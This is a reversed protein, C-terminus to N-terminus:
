PTDTHATSNPLTPEPTQGIPDPQHRRGNIFLVALFVALACATLAGGLKMAGMAQMSYVGREPDYLFCTTAIRQFISPTGKSGGKAEVLAKQVDRPDYVLNEIFNSVKGTPTLFFIASSHAFQGSEPLFRYYFGVAKCIAQANAVDSVMFRWADPKVDQNYGLLYMQKKLAAQEATNRHDFSITVVRYDDGLKWDLSNLATKVHDLVLPCLMPCTYYAMVLIVPRKGDFLEGSVIKKGSSDTFTLDLPVQEGRHDVVQVGETGPLTKLLVQARAQAAGLMVLLSAALAALVRAPTNVGRHAPSPNARSAFM